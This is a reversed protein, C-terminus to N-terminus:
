VTVLVAENKIKNYFSTDEKCGAQMKDSFDDKFFVIM